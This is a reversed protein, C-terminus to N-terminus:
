YQGMGFVTYVAFLSSASSVLLPMPHKDEGFRGCKSEPDCGAEYKISVPAM